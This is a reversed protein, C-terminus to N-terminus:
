IIGIFVIIGVVVLLILAINRWVNLKKELEVQLEFKKELRDLIQSLFINVPYSHIVPTGMVDKPPWIFNVNDNEYRWPIAYYEWIQIAYARRNLSKFMDVGSKISTRKQWDALKIPYKMEKLLNELLLLEEFFDKELKKNSSPMGYDSLIEEQFDPNLFEKLCLYNLSYKSAKFREDGNKLTKIVREIINELDRILLPEDKM